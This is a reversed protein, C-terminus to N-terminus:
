KGDVDAVIEDFHRLILASLDAPTEGARYVRRPDNAGNMREFDEMTMLVFKPKRHQTIAVPAKIAAQTVTAIQQTLEVTSFHRM